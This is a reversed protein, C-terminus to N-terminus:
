GWRSPLKVPVSRGVPDWGNSAWIGKVTEGNMESGVAVVSGYVYLGRGDVNGGEDVASALPTSRSFYTTDFDPCAADGCSIM